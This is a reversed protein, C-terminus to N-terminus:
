CRDPDGVADDFKAEALARLISPRVGLAAFAAPELAVHEASAPAQAAAEARVQDSESEHSKDTM